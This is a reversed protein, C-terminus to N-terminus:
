NQLFVLLILELNEVSHVKENNLHHNIQYVLKVTHWDMQLTLTQFPVIMNLFPQSLSM